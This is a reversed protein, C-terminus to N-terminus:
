LQATAEVAINSIEGRATAIAAATEIEGSAIRNALQMLTPGSKSGNEAEEKVDIGRRRHIASQWDSRVAAWYDQTKDWYLDAAATDFDAARAYTNIVVEHVFTATKGERQGIKANDQEHVWGNPTLAHRNTGLYRDYVPHRTADRRALPRLTPGSTWRAVGDSYSWRGVGGYRPSDDTQWVTQSWASTREASSTSKLRWQNSDSYVLVEKPEYVWDQRWHKVVNSAGEKGTAILLHQLTIKTGTDEIVKVVEHGSSTKAPIPQYDAVFPVTERMDFIVKYTGAMALISQRDREIKDKANDVNRRAAALSVCSLNLAIAAVVSIATWKIPKNM